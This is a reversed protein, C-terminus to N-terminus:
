EHTLEREARHPPWAPESKPSVSVSWGLREYHRRLKERGRVLRSKVAAVSGRQLEAIEEISFGEIEFLVVAERQVSPLGALARAMRRARWAEEPGRAGDEGAPEAGDRFCEEIPVFRRWFSRRSRSRHVSILIAYFWSRFRSPDNLSHLKNFARLLAEQYLDDGDAASRCLRRATAAAQEHIPELSELLRDWRELGTWVDM